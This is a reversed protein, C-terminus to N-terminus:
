LKVRNKGFNGALLNLVDVIVQFLPNWGKSSIGATVVNALLTIM